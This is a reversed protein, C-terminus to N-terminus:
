RLPSCRADLCQESANCAGQGAWPYVNIPVRRDKTLDGDTCGFGIVACNDTRLLVAFGFDDTPLSGVAPLDTGVLVSYISEAADLDGAALVSDAPCQGRFVALQVWQGAGTCFSGDCENREEETVTHLVCFPDDAKLHCPDDLEIEVAPTGCSSVVVLPGVVLARIYRTADVSKGPAAPNFNGRRRDLPRSREM